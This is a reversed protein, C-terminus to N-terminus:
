IAYLRSVGGIVQFVFDELFCLFQKRMAELFHGSKSVECQNHPMDKGVPKNQRQFWVRHQDPVPERFLQDYPMSSDNGGPKESTNQSERRSSPRVPLSFCVQRRHSNDKRLARALLEHKEIEKNPFFRALALVIQSELLSGRSGVVDRVSSCFQVWTLSGNIAVDLQRLLMHFAELM